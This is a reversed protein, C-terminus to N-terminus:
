SPSLMREPRIAVLVLGEKLSDPVRQPVMRMLIM